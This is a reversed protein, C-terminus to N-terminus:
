VVKVCLHQADGGRRIAAVPAVQALVKFAASVIVAHASSYFVAVEARYASLQYRQFEVYAVYTHVVAIVAGALDAVRQFRVKFLYGGLDSVVVEVTFGNYKERQNM